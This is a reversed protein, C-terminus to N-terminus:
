FRNSSINISNDDENKISNSCKNQNEMPNAKWFLSFTIFNTEFLSFYTEMLSSQYEM